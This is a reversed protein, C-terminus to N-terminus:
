PAFYNEKLALISGGGFNTHWTVDCITHLNYYLSFSFGRM